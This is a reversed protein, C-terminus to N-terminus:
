RVKISLNEMWRVIQHVDLTEHLELEEADLLARIEAQIGDSGDPVIEGSASVADGWHEGVNAHRKGVAAKVVTLVNMKSMKSQSGTGGGYHAHLAHHLARRM